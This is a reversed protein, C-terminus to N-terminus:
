SSGPVSSDERDSWFSVVWEDHSKRLSFGEAKVAAKNQRSAKWFQVTPAAERVFLTGKRTEVGTSHRRLRTRVDTQALIRHQRDQLSLNHQSGNISALETTRFHGDHCDHM